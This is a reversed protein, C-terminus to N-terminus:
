QVPNRSVTPYKGLSLILLVHCLGTSSKLTVTLLPHSTNDDRKRKVKMSLALSLRAQLIHFIKMDRVMNCLGVASPRTGGFERTPVQSLYNELQLFM